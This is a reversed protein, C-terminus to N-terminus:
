GTEHVYCDESPSPFKGTYIYIYPITPYEFKTQKMFSSNREVETDLVRNM